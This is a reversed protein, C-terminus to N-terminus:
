SLFSLLFFGIFNGKNDLAFKGLKTLLIEHERKIRSIWGALNTSGLATMHDIKSNKLTELLQREGTKTKENLFGIVLPGLQHTYPACLGAMGDKRNFYYKNIGKIAWFNGYGGSGWAWLTLFEAIAQSKIKDANCYYDWFHKLIKRVDENSLNYFRLIQMKQNTLNFVTPALNKFTDWMVGKNTHFGSGDPVPYKSAWDTTAKSLGGENNFLGKLDFKNFDAM